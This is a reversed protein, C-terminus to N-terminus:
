VRHEPYETIEQLAVKLRGWFARIADPGQKWQIYTTTKLVAMMTSTLEYSTLDDLSIIILTDDYDMVHNLCYALEFQCWQSLKFSRSFVMMIKKSRGVCDAINDVINKGPIFDREHICLRFGQRGELEAMLNRRVWPMNESAYSVFVDFDFHGQQLYRKRVDDDGRFAEYLALRLHWRYRHLLLFSTLATVLVASVFIISSSMEPSLMCAQPHIHFDQFTLKMHENRCTYVRDTQNFISKSSTIYWQRFWLLNCSCVFPNQGLDLKEFHPRLYPSFTQQVVVTIKNDSLNLHTLQTLSDFVGYPLISIANGHLLLKTLNVFRHFLKASVFDLQSNGLSLTRLAVLHGFIDLFKTEDVLDLYSGDAYLHELVTNHTQISVNAGIYQIKKDCKTNLHLTVIASHHFIGTNVRLIGSQQADLNLTQLPLNYVCFQTHVDVYTIRNDSLDLYTLQHLMDLGEIATIRNMSVDLAKLRSFNSTRFDFHRYDNDSLDLYELIEFASNLKGTRM